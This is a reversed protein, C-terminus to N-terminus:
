LALRDYIAVAAVYMAGALRLYPFPASYLIRHYHCKHKGQIAGHCLLRLVAYGEGFVSKKKPPHRNRTHRIVVAPELRSLGLECIDCLASNIKKPLIGLVFVSPASSPIGSPCGWNSIDRHSKGGKPVEVDAWARTKLYRWM